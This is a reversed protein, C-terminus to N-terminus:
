QIGPFSSEGQCTLISGTSIPNKPIGSLKGGYENYKWYDVFITILPFLVVSELDGKIEVYM